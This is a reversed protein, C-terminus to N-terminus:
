KKKSFLIDELIDDPTDKNIKLGWEDDTVDGKFLTYRATNEKIVQSVETPRLTKVYKEDSLKDHIIKQWLEIIKADNALVRQIFDSKSAVQELQNLKANVTWVAVWAQKAIERQSKTPDALVVKVVKITNKKSDSRERM